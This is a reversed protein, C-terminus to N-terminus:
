LLLSLEPLPTREVVEFSALRPAHLDILRKDGGRGTEFLQVRLDASESHYCYLKGGGPDTYTVGAMEVPRSVLSAKLRYHGRHGELEWAAPSYRSQNFLLQSLRNFRLTKGDGLRLCLATLPRLLKKGVRIQGSLAEFVAGADEGFANCHSWAWREAHESGWLHSQSGPAEQLRLREGDVWVEGSVRVSWNPSLYKTKPFPLRYFSAPYLALSAENPLFQLDWRLEHGGSAVRGRAGNNYIASEGAQFFFIDRDVTAQEATVTEKVAIPGIGAQDRFAVAWVSASPPGFGRRPALLSYRLWFARGLEPVHCILFYVEYFPHRRGDWRVMNDYEQQYVAM